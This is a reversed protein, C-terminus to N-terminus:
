AFLEGQKRGMAAARRRCSAAWTMLLAHFGHQNRRWAAQAIYVKAQRILAARVADRSTNM